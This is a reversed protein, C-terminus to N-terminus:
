KYIQRARIIARKDYSKVGKVKELIVEMDQEEDFVYYTEGHDEVVSLTGFKSLLEGM